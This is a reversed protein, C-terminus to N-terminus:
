CSPPRHRATCMDTGSGQPQMGGQALRWAAVTTLPLPQKADTTAHGLCRWWYWMALLANMVGAQDLSVWHPSQSTFHSSAAATAEPQPTSSPSCELPGAHTSVTKRGRTHRCAASLGGPGQSCMHSADRAVAHCSCLMVREGDAQTSKQRGM